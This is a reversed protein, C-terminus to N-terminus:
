QGDVPERYLDPVLTVAATRLMISFDVMGSRERLYKEALELKVPLIRERYEHEPDDAQALVQEENRYYISALDTIGPRVTLIKRYRDRCSEVVEPVMPRPGVVSMDGRFVNWLQPLEDIKAARIVRGVRTIRRDGAVTLLPGKSKARMSRLKLIQFRSFGRGVREQRFLVPSGSEVWVALAALLLIPATLLLTLASLFVDLCRKCVLSSSVRDARTLLTV